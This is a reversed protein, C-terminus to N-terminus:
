KRYGYISITGTITGTGGFVNLGDYANTPGHYGFVSLANDNRGGRGQIGTAKATGPNALEVTTLFNDASGYVGVIFKTDVASQFNASTGFAGIIQRAYNSGSEPTGSSALRIFLDQSTSGINQIYVKYFDYTSSFVNNIVVSTEATFSTTNLLTVGATEATPIRNVWASGDWYQLTDTDNLHTYMGEVATGIASGRAATGAFTMITQDMLYTNVDSADLRTFSEFEKRPM